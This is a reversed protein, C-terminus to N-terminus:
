VTDCGDHVVKDVPDHCVGTQIRIWQDIFRVM